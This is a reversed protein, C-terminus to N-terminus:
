RTRLLIYDAVERYNRLLAEFLTTGGMQQILLLKGASMGKRQLKPINFADLSDNRWKLAVECDLTSDVKSPPERGAWMQEEDRSEPFSGNDGECGSAIESWDTEISVNIVPDFHV